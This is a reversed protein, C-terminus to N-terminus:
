TMQYQARNHRTQKIGNHSVPDPISLFTNKIFNGDNNAEIAHLTPFNFRSM